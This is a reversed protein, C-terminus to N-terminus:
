RQVAWSLLRVLSLDPQQLLQGVRCLLGLYPIGMSLALKHHSANSRRIRLNGLEIYRSDEWLFPLLPFPTGNLPHAVHVVGERIGMENARNGNRLTQIGGFVKVPAM